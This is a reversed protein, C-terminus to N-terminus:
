YTEKEEIENKYFEKQKEDIFYIKPRTRTYKKWDILIIFVIYNNRIERSAEPYEKNFKISQLFKM